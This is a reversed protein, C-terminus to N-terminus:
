AADYWEDNSSEGGHAEEYYYDYADDYNDDSRDEDDAEEREMFIQPHYMEDLPEWLIERQIQLAHRRMAMEEQTFPRKMQILVSMDDNHSMACRYSYYDCAGRFGLLLTAEFEEKLSYPSNASKLALNDLTLPGGMGRWRPSSTISELLESYLDKLRDKFDDPWSHLDRSSGLETSVSFFIKLTQIVIMTHFLRKTREFLQRGTHDTTSTSELRSIHAEMNRYMSDFDCKLRRVLLDPDEKEVDDVVFRALSSKYRPSFGPPCEMNRGRLALSRERPSVGRQCATIVGYCRRTVTYVMSYITRPPSFFDPMIELPVLPGQALVYGEFSCHSERLLCLGVQSCTQRCLTVIWAVSEPIDFFVKLILLGNPAGKKLFVRLTGFWIERAVRGREPGYPIDADEKVLSYRSDEPIQHCLINQIHTKTVDGSELMSVSTMARPHVGLVAPDGTMVRLSSPQSMGESLDRNISNWVVRCKPFTELVYRSDGGDGDALCAAYFEHDRFRGLFQTGDLIARTKVWATTSTGFPRVLNTLDLKLEEPWAQTFESTILAGRDLPLAPVAAYHESGRVYLPPLTIQYSSLVRLRPPDVDHSTTDDIEPVGTSERLLQYCRALDHFTIKVFLVLQDNRDRLEEYTEELGLFAFLDAKLGSVDAGLGYSERLWTEMIGLSEQPCRLEIRAPDRFWTDFIRDVVPCLAELNRVVSFKREIDEVSWSPGYALVVISLFANTLSSDMADWTFRSPFIASFPTSVTLSRLMMMRSSCIRHHLDKAPIHAQVRIHVLDGSIDGLARIALERGAFRSVSAYDRMENGHAAVNEGTLRCVEAVLAQLKRVRALRKVVPAWPLTSAEVNAFFTVLDSTEEVDYHRYIRFIVESRLRRVIVSAPIKLIESGTLSRVGGKVGTVHIQDQVREVTPRVVSYATSVRTYLNVVQRFLEETM